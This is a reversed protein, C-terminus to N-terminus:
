VIGQNILDQEFEGYLLLTAGSTSIPETSVESIFRKLSTKGVLFDTNKEKQFLNSTQSTKIM